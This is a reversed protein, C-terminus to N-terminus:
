IYVIDLYMTFSIYRSFGFCRIIQFPPLVQCSSLDETFLYFMKKDFLLLAAEYPDPLRCDYLRGNNEHASNIFLIQKIQHIYESVNEVFHFLVNSCITTIFLM